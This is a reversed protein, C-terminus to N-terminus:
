KGMRLHLDLNILWNHQRTLAMETEDPYRIPLTPTILVGDIDSEAGALFTTLNMGDSVTPACHRGNSMVEITLVGGEMIRYKYKELCMGMVPKTLDTRSVQWAHDRLVKIFGEADYEIPQKILHDLMTLGDIWLNARFKILNDPNPYSYM